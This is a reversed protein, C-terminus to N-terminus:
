KVVEGNPLHESDIVIKLGEPLQPTENFVQKSALITACNLMNTLDKGREDDVLYRIQSM